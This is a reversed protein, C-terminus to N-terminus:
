TTSILKGCKKNTEAVLAYHDDDEEKEDVENISVLIKFIVIGISNILNNVVM